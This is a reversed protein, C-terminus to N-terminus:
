PRASRAASVGDPKARDPNPKGSVSLLMSQVQRAKVSEDPILAEGDALTKTGIYPMGATATHVGNKPVHLFQLALAIQEKRTLNTQVDRDFVDLLARLHLLTNLKDNRLKDLAAQLVQNQRMVRCPDSCWDHRFRGYSVAQEGNLHQMGPKFHIHLHGWTDDYDIPGNPGTHYLAASNMPNLDIGGIANILDKTTNIRLVLYRDFRRIGLWNAIVAQAERTGGEAQAENIKAERGSPMTADMDRLV